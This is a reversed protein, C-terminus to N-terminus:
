VSGGVISRIKARLGADQGARQQRARHSYLLLGVATAFEPDILSHPMRSLPVPSGVRSPVRLLSEAHDLLGALKAGGGTLVAGTGLAELVGGQRLNDRVMQFLERARPELIECLFRLPVRRSANADLGQVDIEHTQSVATVIAHGFQCKLYEAEALSTRLVVALDNTFHDGGIPLSATHVVAGEFLVVLETSAAGIDIVCVGLEREDASLVAEAAAIAEFVTDTAEVGARNMCTVVSQMASMLCTVIQLNVELTSGVMGAPNHIGGQEDVLFEQPLLHVITRDSPLQVSRAREVAARVDDRTIERMRNGLLIGGRSSFGRVHSGGIGVAASAIMCGSVGEAKKFAEDFSQAAPQLDAILGRRMGRAEVVAHARYRVAGDQLDAVLVRIKANGADLVVLLSEQQQAM